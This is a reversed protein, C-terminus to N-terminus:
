QNIFILDLFTAFCVPNRFSSRVTIMQSRLIGNELPYPKERWSDEAFTFFVSSSKGILAAATCRNNPAHACSRLIKELALTVM